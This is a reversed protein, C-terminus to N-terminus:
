RVPSNPGVPHQQLLLCRVQSACHDTDPTYHGTAPPLALLSSSKVAKVLDDVSPKEETKLKPFFKPQNEQLKKNGLATVKSFSPMFRRFVICLDVFSSVETHTVPDELEHIRKTTAESIEQMEPWIVHDLHTVTEAFFSCKEVEANSRHDATAGAGTQSLKLTNQDIKSIIVINDLHPIASQWKISLLIVYMARQVTIPTSRLGFSMKLFLYRGHDSSFATKKRDRSDLEVQFYGSNDDLNSFIRTDCLSETCHKMRHLRQSDQVTM